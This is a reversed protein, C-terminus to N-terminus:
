NTMEKRQRRWEALLWATLAEVRASRRQQPTRGDPAAPVVKMSYGGPRHSMRKDETVTM